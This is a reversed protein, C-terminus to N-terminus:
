HDIGAMAKVRELTVLGSRMDAEVLRPERTGPPGYGAGGPLHLELGDDPTELTVQGSGFEGAAIEQGNVIVRTLPGNEGGAMGLPPFYLRDPNMFFSVPRNYGPLPSFRLRHGFAGRWEGQGASDPRLSRERVLVPARLEFTEVAM